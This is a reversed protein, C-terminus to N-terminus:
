ALSMGGLGASCLGPTLVLEGVVTLESYEGQGRSPPISFCHHTRIRVGDDGANELDYRHLLELGTFVGVADEPIRRAILTSGVLMDSTLRRLTDHCAIAVRLVEFM